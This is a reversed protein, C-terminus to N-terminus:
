AAVPDGDGGVQEVATGAELGPEHWLAGLAGAVRGRGSMVLVGPRVEPTCRISGDPIVLHVSSPIPCPGSADSRRIVLCPIAPLKRAPRDRGSPFGFHPLDIDMMLLKRQCAVYRGPRRGGRHERQGHGRAGAGADRLDARLLDPVGGGSRLELVNVGEDVQAVGPLVGALDGAEAM